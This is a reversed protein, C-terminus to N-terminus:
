PKLLSADKFISGIIEYSGKELLGTYSEHFFDVARPKFNPFVAMADYGLTNYDSIVMFKEGIPMDSFHNRTTKKILKGILGFKKDM